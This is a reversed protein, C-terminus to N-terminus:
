QSRDIFPVSTPTEKMKQVKEEGSTLSKIPLYMNVCIIKFLQFFFIKMFLNDVLHM